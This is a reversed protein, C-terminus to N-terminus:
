HQSWGRRQRLQGIGERGFRQISRQGRQARHPRRRTVTRTAVVGSREGAEPRASPAGSSERAVAETVDTYGGEPAQVSLIMSFAASDPSRVLDGSPSVGQGACSPPLPSLRRRAAATAARLATDPTSLTTLLEVSLHCGAHTPVRRTTDILNDAPPNTTVCTTLLRIIKTTASAEQDHQLHSCWDSAGHRYAEHLDAVGRLEDVRERGAPVVRASEKRPPQDSRRSMSTRLDHIARANSRVASPVDHGPTTVEADPATSPRM